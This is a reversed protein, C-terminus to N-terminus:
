RQEEISVGDIRVVETAVEDGVSTTRMTSLSPWGYLVSELGCMTYTTVSATAIPVSPAYGIPMGLEWAEVLAREIVTADASVAIGEYAGDDRARVYDPDGLHSNSTDWGDSWQVEATRRSLGQVRVFRQGDSTEEISQLGDNALTRGWANEIAFPLFTGLLAQGLRFAGEATTNPATTSRAKLKLRLYRYTAQINHAICLARPQIIHMTGTATIGSMDGEVVLEVPRGPPYTWAGETNAVIKRTRPTGAPDFCVYGGVLEGRQIYRGGQTAGSSPPVLRTGTLSYSLNELDTYTKITEIVTWASGNTSYSWEAEGFNPMLLLMAVSSSPLRQTSGLDWRIENDANDTKSEWYVQPSPSIDPFLHQLGRGYRVPITWTDALYASSGNSSTWVGQDLWQRYISFPRGILLDPNSWTSTAHHMATTDDDAISGFFRLLSNGTFTGSANVRHGYEVRQGATGAVHTLSGSPGELWEISEPDDKYLVRVKRTGGEDEIHVRYAHFEGATLGTIDSGVQASAGNDFLRAGTDTFRLSVHAYDTGNDGQRMYLAVDDQTLLASSTLKVHVEAVCPPDNAVTSTRYMVWSGASASLQLGDSVLSLTPATGSTSVTWAAITAPSEIPLYLIGNQWPTAANHKGYTQVRWDHTDWGGLYGESLSGNVGGQGGNNCLYLLKERYPVVTLDTLRTNGDKGLDMPSNTGKNATAVGSYLLEDESSALTLDVAEVKGIRMESELTDDFYFVYIYGDDALTTAVNAGALRNTSCNGLGLTAANPDDSFAQKPHSKSYQYLSTGGSSPITILVVRGDHLAVLDWSQGSGPAADGPESGANVESVSAGLDYSVLHHIHTELGSTDYFAVYITIYLGHAVARMRAPEVNAAVARAFGDVHEVGLSWTAGDDDSYSMGITWYTSGGEQLDNRLYFCCTRNDALRVLTPCGHVDTSRDFVAVSSSWADTAKPRTRCSVRQAVHDDIVAILKGANTRIVHPRTYGEFDGYVWPSASHFDVHRFGTPKNFALWGKVQTATDNEDSWGYRGGVTGGTAQGSKLGRITYSVEGDATGHSELQMFSSGTPQEPEPQAQSATSNVLDLGAYGSSSVPLVFGRLVDPTEATAM